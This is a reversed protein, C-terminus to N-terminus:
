KSIILRKTTKRGDSAELVVLYVGDSFDAVEVTLAQGNQQVKERLMVIGRLDLISITAHNTYNLNSPLSYEITLIENKAVPNPRLNLRYEDKAVILVGEIQSYSYNGNFDVQKLRYYSRGQIPSRDTFRYNRISTSTGAGEMEGISEFTEGNESREVSYYSNNEESATTWRIYVQNELATASFSILEIPLAYKEYSGLTFYQGDTFNYSFTATKNEADISLPEIITAGTTFDGDTDVLMVVQNLNNTGLGSPGTINELEFTITSTGVTGTEQIRWERNLRSKVQASNFEVNESDEMPANDNAWMMFSNDNNFSTVEMTVIADNNESKSKKQTLCSGDDRGIGAIDHRYTTNEDWDFFVTAGDSALYDQESASLSAVNRTIGYKIALYSEVRQRETDTLIESFVLVEAIRGSLQSNVTGSPHNGIGFTSAANLATNSSTGTAVSASNAFIEVPGSVAQERTVTAIFPELTNYLPSTGSRATLTSTNDANAHLRGSSMGLGYDATTSSTGTSLFVPADEFDTTSGFSQGSKYVVVMSYNGSVSHSGSSELYVGNTSSPDYIRVGPNFNFENVEYTPSVPSVGGLNTSAADRSNGSQDAWSTIAGGSTITNTGQDARLWLEINDSVASAAATVGGPGCSERATGLTFYEADAFDINDFTIVDGNFTGGSYTTGTSLDSTGPTLSNPGIILQYDSNNRSTFNTLASLDFSISVNGVTGSEDVRWITGLRETVTGPLESVTNFPTDADNGDNGWILFSNNASFSNLNTNNTSSIGGLGMTVISGSNVSKSQKQQLCANDDRGIGAIDSDYLDNASNGDWITTGSSNVYDRATTQDLTIGYKIALYSEIQDNEADSPRSSYSIVEAINGYFLASAGAGNGPVFDGITYAEDDVSNFSGATQNTLAAGNQYVNNSSGGLDDRVQFLYTQGGNFVYSTNDYYRFYGDEFYFGITHSAMEVGFANGLIMGGVNTTVGATSADFGLPVRYTTNDIEDTPTLVLYYGDSYFGASGNLRDNTGDFDVSPNFNVGNTQFAPPNGGSAADNSGARDAWATVSAGNTSTNPGLDAKLWLNLNSTVGGPACSIFATGLSFYEGNDFEVGEFTLTSGSLTGGTIVRASNFAGDSSNGAIILSYDDQGPTGSLSLEGIDFSINVRGSSNTEAVRWVREIRQAVTPPVDSTETDTVAGGDNGWILWTNDKTFATERLMTVISGNNESRSTDQEFESNDDRGIGAIDRNYELYGGISAATSTNFIISGASNYYNIPTGQNLTIGYKLALYSEIRRRQTIPLSGPENCYIFESIQGRFSNVNTDTTTDDFQTGDGSGAGGLVIDGNVGTQDYLRGVNTLPTGFSQGNLYATATGTGSSNGNIELTVIYETNASLSTSITNVNSGNNWPSGTGDNNRNWTTVHLNGSRMYINIGRTEDGQEYLVQRNTFGFSATRFAINIGKKTYFASSNFDENNATTLSTSGSTFDVSENFNITSSSRRYVPTGAGTTFDHNGIWHDQWDSVSGADSNSTVESVENAKLWTALPQKYGGPGIAPTLCDDSSVAATIGAVLDLGGESALTTTPFTSIDTLDHTNEDVDYGFLSYGYVVQNPLIGLDDFTVAIGQMTQASQGRDTGIDLLPLPDDGFTQRRLIVYNAYTPGYDFPTVLGDDPDDGFGPWDSDEIAILSTYGDPDGNADLSTIAALQFRDNGNREVVPFIANAPECTVIGTYWIIDVRETQAQITGAGEDDENVLINDYGSNINRNKYILDADEVADPGLDIDEPGFGPTPIPNILEYWINIFRSGDTRRIAVTDPTLFNDFTVDGSGFDVLYSTVRDNTGEGNNVSYENNAIINNGGVESADSPATALYNSTITSVPTTNITNIPYPSTQGIAMLSCMLLLVVNVLVRNKNFLSLIIYLLKIAMMARKLGYNKSIINGSHNIVM